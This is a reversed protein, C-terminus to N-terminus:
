GRRNGNRIPLTYGRSRADTRVTEPSHAAEYTDMTQVFTPDTNIITQRYSSRRRLLLIVSRLHLAPMMSSRLLREELIRLTRTALLRQTHTEERRPSWFRANISFPLDTDVVPACAGFQLPADVVRLVHGLKQTTLRLADAISLGNVWSWASRNPYLCSSM